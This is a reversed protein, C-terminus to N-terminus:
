LYRGLIPLIKEKGCTKIFSALKPGKEKGIIVQYSLEFLLPAEIDTRRAIEYLEGSLTRDDYADLNEVVAYLEKVVAM